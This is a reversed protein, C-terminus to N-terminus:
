RKTCCLVRDKRETTSFLGWTGAIMVSCVDPYGAYLKKMEFNTPTQACVNWKDRDTLFTIKNETLWEPHQWLERDSKQWKIIRLAASGHFQLNYILITLVIKCKGKQGQAVFTFTKYNESLNCVYRKLNVAYPRTTTPLFVSHAQRNLM